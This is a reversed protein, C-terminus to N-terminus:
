KTIREGVIQVHVDVVALHWVLEVADREADLQTSARKPRSQLSCKRLGHSLDVALVRVWRVARRAVAVSTPGSSRARETLLGQARLLPVGRASRGYPLAGSRPTWLPGGSPARVCNERSILQNRPCRLPSRVPEMVRIM